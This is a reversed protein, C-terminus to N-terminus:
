KCTLLDVKINKLRNKLTDIGRVGIDVRNKHINKVYQCCWFVYKLYKSFTHFAVTKTNVQSM